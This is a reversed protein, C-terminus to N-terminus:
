NDCILGPVKGYCYITYDGFMKKNTIEGAFSMQECDYAVYDPSSAM